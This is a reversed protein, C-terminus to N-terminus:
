PQSSKYANPRYQGRMHAKAQMDRLMHAFKQAWIEILQEGLGASVEGLPAADDAVSFRDQHMVANVGYRPNGVFRYPSILSPRSEIADEDVLQPQLALMLSTKAQVPLDGEGSAEWWPLAMESPMHRFFSGISVFLMEAEYGSEVFQAAADYAFGFATQYSFGEGAM